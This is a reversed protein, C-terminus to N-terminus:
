IYSNGPIKKYTSHSKTSILIRTTVDFISRTTYEARVHGNKQLNEFAIPSLQWESESLTNDFLLIKDFTTINTIM